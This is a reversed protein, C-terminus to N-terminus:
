VELKKKRYELISPLGLRFCIQTGFIISFSFICSFLITVFHLCYIVDCVAIVNRKGIVFRRLCHVISCCRHYKVTKKCLCTKEQSDFAQTKNDSDDHHNKSIPSRPAIFRRWTETKQCTAYTFSAHLSPFSLLFGAKRRCIEVKSKVICWEWLMRRAYRDWILERECLWMIWSRNVLQISSMDGSYSYWLWTGNLTYKKIYLFLPVSPFFNQLVSFAVTHRRLPRVDHRLM